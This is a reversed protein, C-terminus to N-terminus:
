VKKRTIYVTIVVKQFLENIYGKFNKDTLNYSFKSM